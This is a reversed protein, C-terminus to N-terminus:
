GEEVQRRSRRVLVVVLVIAVVAVMIGVVIWTTSSSSSTTQTTAVKPRVKLYSDMNYTTFAVNGGNDKVWGDWKAVNYGVLNFPYDYVIYPSQDYMIQQMQYVLDRRQISDPGGTDPNVAADQQPFLQDFTKDSWAPDNFGNAIQDSTWNGLNDGPDLYGVWSLVYLDMDPAFTKGQYNFIQSVLTGTDMASYSIKIGLSQLWGAVLKGATSSSPYSTNAWLRLTIPKGQKDVRKGSKLPYGADTLLQGAKAPDYSYAQDATPTWHYDISGFKGQPTITSTGAQAYGFDAVAALKARDVAWNLAQRFKVDRLVPNGLSDASDYCNIGIYNFTLSKGQAVRINPDSSLQKVRAPSVDRELDINGTQLDTDMTDSNTYVQFLVQDVIPKAGWYTPSKVLKAYGDKKFETVQFPGTGIIPPKNQFSGQAEAPPLKGWIHEPLIPIAMRLFNAKPHALHFVVTNADPTDIPLDIATTFPSYTGNKNKIIFTYTWAVDASTFPQGDQWTVGQRLKLTITKGDASMGGNAKTPIEAALSPRPTLDTNYDFLQDYNLRIIEFSAGSYTVLPNLTDPSSTWGVRLTTGATPSASSSGGLLMPSPSASTSGLATAAGLLLIAAGLLAVLAARGARFRNRTHPERLSGSQHQNVYIGRQRGAQRGSPNWPSQARSASTM